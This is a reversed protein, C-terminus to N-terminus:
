AAADSYNTNSDHLYKFTISKSVKLRLLLRFSKSSGIHSDCLTRRQGKATDHKSALIENTGLMLEYYLGSGIVRVRALEFRASVRVLISKEQIETM